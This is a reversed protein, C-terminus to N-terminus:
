EIDSPPAPPLRPLPQGVAIAPCESLIVPEEEEELPYPWDLPRTCHRVVLLTNTSDCINEVGYLSSWRRRLPPPQAIAAVPISHRAAKLEKWLVKDTAAASTEENGRLAADSGRLAADTGRVAAAIGRLAADSGRLAAAIGRLAEDTGRLAAETCSHIGFAWHLHRTTLTLVM